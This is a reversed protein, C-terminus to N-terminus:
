SRALTDPRTHRLHMVGAALAAGLGLAAVLALVIAAWPTEDASVPAPAPKPTLAPAPKFARMQAAIEDTRAADQADASRLDQQETTGALSSTPSESRLTHADASAAGMLAIAALVSIITRFVTAEQGEPNAPVNARGPRRV